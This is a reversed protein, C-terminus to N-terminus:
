RGTIHNLILLIGVGLVLLLALVAEFIGVDPLSLPVCELDDETEFKVAAESIWEPANKIFITNM